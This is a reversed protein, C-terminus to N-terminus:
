RSYYLWFDHETEVLSFEIRVGESGRMMSQNLKEVEAVTRNYYNSEKYIRSKFSRFFFVDDLNRIKNYGYNQDVSFSALIHRISPFYIWGLEMSDNAIGKKKVIPMIGVIRTESLMRYKDYFADEKIKFGSIYKGATDVVVQYMESSLEKRFEDDTSGNYVKLKESVISDILTHYLKDSAFLSNSVENLVNRWIRKSYAVSREELFVFPYYGQLNREPLEHPKDWLEIPGLKASKPFVKTYEFNNRYERVVKRKGTSDWVTWVGVRNNHDFQGEAKPNGNHYWSKYTGNKLGNIMECEVRFDKDIFENESVSAGFGSCFFVAAAFVVLSFPIMRRMEAESKDSREMEM